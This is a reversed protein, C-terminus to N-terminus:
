HLFHGNSIKECVWFLQRVPLDVVFFDDSSCVVAGVPKSRNFRFTKGCSIKQSVIYM